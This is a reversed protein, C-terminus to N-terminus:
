MSAAVLASVGCRGDETFVCLVTFAQRAVLAAEGDVALFGRDDLEAAVPVVRGGFLAQLPFFFELVGGFVEGVIAVAVADCAAAGRGYDGGNWVGAFVECGAFERGTGDLLAVCGCCGDRGCVVLIREFVLLITVAVVRFHTVNGLFRLIAARALLLDLWHLNIDAHISSPRRRQLFNRRGRRRIQHLHLSNNHRNRHCAVYTNRQVEKGGLLISATNKM